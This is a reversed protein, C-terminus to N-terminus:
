DWNPFLWLGRDDIEEANDIHELYTLLTDMNGFIMEHPLTAFLWDPALHKGQQMCVLIPKKQRNACFLEEYTGCAYRNIDLVVLLFDGVDVLRLDAHRVPKMLDTLGDWDQKKRLQKRKIEFEADERLGEIQKTIPNIVVIGMKKLTPTIADRWGAGNDLTNQMAGALYCRQSKLRGM